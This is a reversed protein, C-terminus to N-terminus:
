ISTTQECVACPAPSEQFSDAVFVRRESDGYAKLIGRMYICAGGRWAGAEFFDGPFDENGRRVTM